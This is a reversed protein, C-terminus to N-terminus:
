VLLNISYYMFYPTNEFLATLHVVSHEPQALSSRKEIDTANQLYNVHLHSHPPQLEM